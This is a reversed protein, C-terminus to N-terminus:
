THDWKVHMLTIKNSKSDFIIEWLVDDKTKNYTAKWLTLSSTKRKLTAIYELLTISGIKKEIAECVESFRQENFWTAAEVETEVIYSTLAEYDSTEHLKIITNVLDNLKKTEDM